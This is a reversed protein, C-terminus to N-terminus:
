KASHPGPSSIGVDGAIPPRFTSRNARSEDRPTADPPFDPWFEVDDIWQHNPAADFWEPSFYLKFPSYFRIPLPNEPHQTRGRYLVVQRGNIALWVLGDDAHRFFVEVQFWGDTPVPVEDNFVDWDVTRLPQPAEGRVHWYMEGTPKRRLYFSIRYNNSGTGRNDPAWVREVRSDPEKVEFFMRWSAHHDQPCVELYNEQLKMWYRVYAQPSAPDFLSFESRNLAGHAATRDRRTVEMRLARTPRGDRGPVIELATPAFAKVDESGTIYVFHARETPLDTSWDFGTAADRGALSDRKPPQGHVLHVGESFGSRFWPRGAAEREAPKGSAAPTAGPLAFACLLLASGAAARSAGFRFRPLSRTMM